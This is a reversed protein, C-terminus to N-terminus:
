EATAQVNSVRKTAGEKRLDKIVAQGLSLHQDTKM